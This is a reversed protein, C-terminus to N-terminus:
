PVLAAQNATESILPIGVFADVASRILKRKKKGKRPYMSSILNLSQMTPVIKLLSGETTM